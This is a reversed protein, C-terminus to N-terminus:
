RGDAELVAGVVQWIFERAALPLADGDRAREDVVRVDDHGVLRSAVEVRLRRLLDHLDELVHVLLPARNDKDRM